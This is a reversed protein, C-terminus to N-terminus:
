TIRLHLSKTTCEIQKVSQCEMDDRTKYSVNAHPSNFYESEEKKKNSKKKKKWMATLIVFWLKEYKHFFLLHSCILKLWELRGPRTIDLKQRPSRLQFSRLDKKLCKLLSMSVHNNGTLSKNIKLLPPTAFHTCWGLCVVMYAEWAQDPHIIDAACRIM